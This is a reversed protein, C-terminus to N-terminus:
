PTKLCPLPFRNLFARARPMADRFFQKPERLWLGNYRRSQAESVLVDRPLEVITARWGPWWFQAREYTHELFRERRSYGHYDFVWNDTAVFIHNGMFGPKPRLWLAKMDPSGHLELFAYALVQCAGCAFFVRDPLAWQKEPDRKAGRTRLRYM